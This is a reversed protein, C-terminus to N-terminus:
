ITNWVFMTRIRYDLLYRDKFIYIIIPCKCMIILIEQMAKYYKYNLIELVKM